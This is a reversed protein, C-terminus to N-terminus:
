KRASGKKVLERLEADVYAMAKSLWLRLISDDCFDLYHAASDREKELNWNMFFHVNGLGVLKPQEKLKSGQYKDFSALGDKEVIGKVIGKADLHWHPQAHNNSGPMESNAWEARFLPNADDFFHLLFHKLEKRNKKRKYFVFGCYLWFGNKMYVVPVTKGNSDVLSNPRGFSNLAFSIESSDDQMVFNCKENLYPELIELSFNVVKPHTKDKEM